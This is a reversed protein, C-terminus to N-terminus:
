YDKTQSLLKHGQSLENSKLVKCNINLYAQKHCRKFITLLMFGTERCIIIM